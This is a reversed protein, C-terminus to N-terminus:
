LLHRLDDPTNINVFLREEKAADEASFDLVQAGIQRLYVYVGLHGQRLQRELQEALAAPWISVLPETGKRSAAVVPKEPHAKQWLRYYVTAALFPMDVPMVAVYQTGAGLLAAHIGSLPGKGPFIDSVVTIGRPLNEIPDNAVVIIHPSIGAALEIVRDLLPRGHYLLYRKDQKLRKSKGGALVAVTIDKIKQM